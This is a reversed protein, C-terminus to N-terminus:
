KSSSAQMHHCWAHAALQCCHSGRLRVTSVPWDATDSRFPMGSLRLLPVAKPWSLMPAPGVSAAESCQEREAGMVWWLKEVPPAAKSSSATSGAQGSKQRVSV